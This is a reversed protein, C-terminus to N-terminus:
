KKTVTSQDMYFTKGQAINKDVITGPGIRADSGIQIGPMISCNIGIEVNEGIISGFYTRKTNKTYDKAILSSEIEPREDKNRFKRNAVVTGAGIRANRGVISDGIFGSHMSSEPQFVTSKVEANAGVVSGKEIVTHDRVLSNNGIFAEEGIYAPGKIVANEMIKAGARIIVDGKIEASEAIEANESIKQGDVDEMLEEVVSFLDWPYKISNTEEDIHLVSAKTEEMQLALADEFQREWTEVEDMYDFIDDSLLYMGVVKRNSPAEEPEPKEVLDTAFGEEDLELIGYKEPTDTPTSVFVTESDEEENKEIMPEFFKSAKARYPTLVLFKEDLHNEAQRLAHGMGEPEEQVVFKDAKDALAEEIEREPGQVIVIEDIDAKRLEDITHEILHKGKIETLGKHRKDSLPKFRSSQGAALIVAKM